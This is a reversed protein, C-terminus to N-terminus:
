DRYRRFEGDLPNSTSTFGLSTSSTNDLVVNCQACATNVLYQSEAGHWSRDYAIEGACAGEGSKNLGTPESGKLPTTDCVEPNM